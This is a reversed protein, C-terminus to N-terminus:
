PLTFLFELEDQFEPYIGILSPNESIFKTMVATKFFGELYEVYRTFDDTQRKEQVFPCNLHVSIGNQKGQKTLVFPYLQCEFPRSKYIRCTNDKMEFFSCVYPGASGGCSVAAIRGDSAVVDRMLIKEALSATVLSQKEQAAVKPRWTSDKEKFRCCGDCSLCVMSPVFQKLMM